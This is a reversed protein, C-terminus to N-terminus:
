CPCPPKRCPPCIREQIEPRSYVPDYNPCLGPMYGSPTFNSPIRCTNDVGWLSKVPYNQADEKLPYGAQALTMHDNFEFMSWDLMGANSWPLWIFKGKEGGILSNKFAIEVMAPDTKSLWSWVLDPDLGAGNDFIVEYYGRGESLNADPKVATVGGINQDPAALIKVNETSWDTSEPLGTIILLDGRNDLNSDIELLFHTNVDPNQLFPKQVKFLAYIWLPDERSLQITVLDVTPLYNMSQDFPREYKGNKFDDGGFAQKQASAIEDVQDHVTQMIKGLPAGPIDVHTIVPVPSATPETTATPTPSAEPPSPSLVTIPASPSLVTIPTPSVVAESAQCASLVLLISIVLVFIKM